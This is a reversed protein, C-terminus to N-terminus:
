GDASVIVTRPPFVQTVTVRSGTPIPVGRNAGYAGFTESGGRMALRVEGMGGAPITTTVIGTAGVLRDASVNREESRSGGAIALRAVM